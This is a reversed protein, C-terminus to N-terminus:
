LLLNQISVAGSAYKNYEFCAGPVYKNHAGPVNYMWVHEQPMNSKSISYELSNISLFLQDQLLQM